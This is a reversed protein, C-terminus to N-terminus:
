HLLGRIGGEKQDVGKHIVLKKGLLEGDALVQPDLSAASRTHCIHPHRFRYYAYLNEDKPCLMPLSSKTWHRTQDELRELFGSLIGFAFDVRYRKGVGTERAYRQWESEIFREIFGHIYSAIQVNARTGSIEFAKGTRGQEPIFVTIWIGEVYYHDILIRGLMCQDRTRRISPEGVLMSFFKRDPIHEIEERAHRAMMERAKAAAAQAEHRNASQALVLLKHIRRQIPDDNDEAQGDILRSIPVFAASADAKIRLMECAKRFSPGHSTEQQGGFCEDAIQHAMEHFLVERVDGWRHTLVFSRSLAIERRAYVWQGLRRESDMLLFTVPRLVPRIDSSIYDLCNQYEWRLGHLIRRETDTMRSEGAAHPREYSKM